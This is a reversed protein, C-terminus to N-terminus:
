INVETNVSINVSVKNRELSKGFSYLPLIYLYKSLWIDLDNDFASQDRLDIHVNDLRRTKRILTRSSSLFRGKGIPWTLTLKRNGTDHLSSTM